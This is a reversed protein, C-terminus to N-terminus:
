HCRDCVEPSERRFKGKIKGWNRPHPSVMLGTKASHCSLCAQGDPHCSQCGSLTRRAERAHGSSWEAGSLAGGPHCDQCQNLTFASHDPLDPRAIIM